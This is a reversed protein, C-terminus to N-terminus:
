QSHFTQGSEGSLKIAIRSCRCHLRIALCLWAQPSGPPEPTFVRGALAPSELEIGPDPLDGPSLFPMGRWYEQRSFGMSLPFQHAVTWPTAFLQFYSFHRLVYIFQPRSYQVLFQIWYRIVVQLLFSDSFIYIYLQIVHIHTYICIYM